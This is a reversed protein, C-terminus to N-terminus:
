PARRRTRPNRRLQPNGTGLALLVARWRRRLLPGLLGPRRPPRRINRTRPITRTKGIGPEGVLTVMSGRGSLASEMKAKLQDVEAHRGVFFGSAM